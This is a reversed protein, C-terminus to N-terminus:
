EKPSRSRLYAIVAGAVVLVILLILFESSWKHLDAKLTDIHNGAAFGLWALGGCFVVSGLLTWLYFPVLKMRAIGAPIGVVGRVVPIFRCIFIAFTGYKAFFGDVRDLERHDFRVYKGFREVVPRGGYYGVAYAATQGTLEGLVAVL